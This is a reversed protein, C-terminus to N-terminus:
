SMMQNTLICLANAEVLMDDYHNATLVAGAVAAAALAIKKIKSSDNWSRILEATALLAVGGGVGM